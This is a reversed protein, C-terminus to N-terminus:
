TFMVNITSFVSTNRNSDREPRLALQKDVGESHNGRPERDHQEIM